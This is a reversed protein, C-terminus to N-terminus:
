RSPAPLFSPGQGITRSHVDTDREPSRRARHQDDKWFCVSRLTKKGQVVATNWRARTEISRGELGLDLM